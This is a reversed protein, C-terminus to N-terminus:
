TQFGPYPAWGILMARCKTTRLGEESYRGPPEIFFLRGPLVPIADLSSSRFLDDLFYTLLNDHGM